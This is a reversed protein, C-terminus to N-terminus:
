GIIMNDILRTNGWFAAVALIAKGEIKTIYALDDYRVISVYDIKDPNGEMIVSKVKEVIKSVDKEGSDIMAKCAALSRSLSLADQRHKESLHKNRSSLALGDSERIIPAIIIKVPFNLDFVMKEISVAQQIDKQGFVAIDPQVINFLKSVVTFVGRFHGPRCAGCLNDTLLDVNVTTLNNSYMENEDPIFIMDVGAKEAMEIDRQLDKPYCNFDNPDNFQLRNVFISMVIYKSKKRAIKVLSLHGKHLYGMTPVFGINKGSLRANKVSKRVKKIERVIEM